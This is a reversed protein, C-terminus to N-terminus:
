EEIRLEEIIPEVSYGADRLLHIVGRPGALHGAGVAIFVQEEAVLQEIKPIWNANRNDLLGELHGDLDESAETMAMLANLDQKRYISVMESLQNCAEQPAHITELLSQAQEEISIEDLAKMQDKMTELGSIPRKMEKFKQSFVMEYSEMKEEGCYASSIQQATLLPKIKHYMPIPTRISDKMFSRLFDYDEEEMYDKLSKGGPIMMWMMSSLISGFNLDLPIELVLQQSSALKEQVSPLLFFSDAPILHITGYLYSPQELDARNIEWLLSHYVAGSDSAIDTEESQALLFHSCSLMCTLLIIYKM